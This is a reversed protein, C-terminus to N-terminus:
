YYNFRGWADIIPYKNGLELIISATFNNALGDKFYVYFNYRKRKRMVVKDISSNDSLLNPFYDIGIEVLNNENMMQVFVSPFKDIKNKGIFIRQLNEVVFDNPLSKLKNNYLSLYMLGPISSITKLIKNRDDVDLYGMKVNELSLYNIKTEIMRDTINSISDGQIILSKLNLLDTINDPIFGISCNYIRIENLNKFTSLSQFLSVVDVCESSTLTVIEIKDNYLLTDPIILTDFFSIQLDNDIVRISNHLISREQGQLSCIKCSLLLILIIYNIKM